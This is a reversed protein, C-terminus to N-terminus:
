KRNGKSKSDCIQELEVVDFKGFGQSRDAGLGNDQMLALAKRLESMGLHRKEQSATDLVKLLYTIEAREVFDTRKLASRKGQPTSPHIARELDGDPEMRGLYVRDQHQEGEVFFAHQYIQKSGTKKVFIQLVSLSERWAAKLARTELYLGNADSPFGTWTSDEIAQMEMAENAAEVQQRTIDDDHGTRAKIWSAILKPNKPYGGMVRDRFVLRIRYVRYLADVEENLITRTNKEAV